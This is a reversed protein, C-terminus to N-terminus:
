CEIIRNRDLIFLLFFLTLLLTVAPGMQKRFLEPHPRALFPHKQKNGLEWSGTGQGNVFDVELM